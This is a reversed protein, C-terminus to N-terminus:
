IRTALLQTILGAEGDGVPVDGIHTVPRIGLASSLFVESARELLERTVTQEEAQALAIIDGRAIGRLAGDTVPPTLLRGDVLVFVNAATACAINGQTNLILADDAEASEAERRALINDLYNLSKIRSLPSHENRRTVTAIIVRASAPVEPLPNVTIVVTPQPAPPLAIGREGLGRSVTIRLAADTMGNANLVDNMWGLLTENAHAFPLGIVDLGTRLRALHAVLRPAQSRRVAVTEFVGDGLTFGRDRPDVRAEDAEKLTGNISIIM